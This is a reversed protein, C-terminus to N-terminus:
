ILENKAFTWDTIPALAVMHSCNGPSRYSAGYYFIKEAPVGLSDAFGQIEDNVGPCYREYLEQMEKLDKLGFVQPDLDSSAFTAIAEEDQKLIDGQAKGVKYSTGELIIHQFQTETVIYEGSMREVENM